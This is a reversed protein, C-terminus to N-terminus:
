APPGHQAAAQSRGPPFCQALSVEAHIAPGEGASPDNRSASLLDAEAQLRTLDPLSSRSSRSLVFSFIDSAFRRCVCPRTRGRRAPAAAAGVRVRGRKRPLSHSPAACRDANWRPERGLSNKMALSEAEPWAEQSRAFSTKRWEKLPMVRGQRDWDLSWVRGLHANALDIFANIKRLGKRGRSRDQRSARVGPKPTRNRQRFLAAERRHLDELEAVPRLFRYFFM